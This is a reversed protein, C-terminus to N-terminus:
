RVGIWDINKLLRNRRGESETKGTPPISFFAGSFILANLGCSIYYGYRWGISDVLVGGMVLGLAFGIPQGGGLFAFAFNRRKGPGFSHTILSVATPMCFSIAVGQLARFVILQTGTRALSCGLTFVALLAAGTLFVPRNGVVDAVAGAALLSCGATLAFISAPWLLLNSAINLDSAIRPLGVTLIGSGLTNLFSVGAVTAIILMARSRSLEPPPDASNTREVNLTDSPLVPPIATPVTEAEPQSRITQLETSAM